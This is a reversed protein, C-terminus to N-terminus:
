GTDLRVQGKLDKTTILADYFGFFTASFLFEKRFEDIPAMAGIFDAEGSRLKELSQMWNETRIAEVRVGLREAILSMYDAVLGQYRGQEDFFELPPFDPDPAIKLVPHGTLWAQEETTFLIDDALATAM